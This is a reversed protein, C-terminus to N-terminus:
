STVDDITVLFNSESVLSDFKNFKYRFYESPGLGYLKLFMEM